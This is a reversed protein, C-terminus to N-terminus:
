TGKYCGLADQLTQLQKPAGEMSLMQLSTGQGWAM